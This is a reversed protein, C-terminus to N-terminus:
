VRINEKTPKKSKGKPKSAATPKPQNKSKTPKAKKPPSANKKEREELIQVWQPSSPDFNQIHM